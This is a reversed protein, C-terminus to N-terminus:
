RCRIPGGENVERLGQCCALKYQGRGPDHDYVDGGQPTCSSSPTPSSGGSFDFKVELPRHDSKTYDNAEKFEASKVTIEGSTFTWDVGGFSGGGPAGRYTNAAKKWDNSSGTRPYHANFDGMLMGNNGCNATQTDMFRFVIAENDHSNPGDIPISGHYSAFFMKKGSQKNELCAGVVTRVDWMDTVVPVGEKRITTWTDRRWAASCDTDGPPAGASPIDDIGVSDWSGSGGPLVGVMTSVLSTYHSKKTEQFAYLTVGAWKNPNAAAKSFTDLRGGTGDWGHGQTADPTYINDSVAFIEDSTSSRLLNAEPPTFVGNNNAVLGMCLATAIAGYVLYGKREKKKHEDEFGGATMPAVLPVQENSM